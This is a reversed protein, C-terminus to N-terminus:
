LGAYSHLGTVWLNVAFYTFWLVGFAVMGLKAAGRGQTARTARAHLYIAYAVWTLFASTEKPDWGWYRGWSQEAWVAGAMVAFTWIPFGFAITRYAMSDLTSANPLRGVAARAALGGLVAILATGLTVRAGRPLLAAGALLGIGGSWLAVEARSVTAKLAAAYVSAADAEAAEDAEGAEDASGGDAAAPEQTSTATADVTDALGDWAVDPLSRDGIGGLDDLADVAAGGGLDAVHAAGLSRGPGGLAQGAAVRQEATDRLLHLANMTVGVLFVSFGLMITFVHIKLWHSNLIPMLPGPDTWLVAAAGMSLVAAFMLFAVVEVRHMRWQFVVLAAVVVLFGIVSSFEFMNGWPVRGGSALSRTVIHGLHTTAGVVALTTAGMVARRGARDDRQDGRPVRTFATAYFYTLMAALYLLFTVPWFLANSLEAWAAETM